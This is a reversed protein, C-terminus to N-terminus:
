KGDVYVPVGTLRKITTRIREENANGNSLHLLHIEKVMSIDNAKMFDVVKELGFHTRLVRECQATNLAGSAVNERLTDDDYNCEIMLRTIGKFRYRCFWTDTLFLIKEDGTSILFGLAGDVDHEVELPLVAWGSDVSFQVRPSVHHIRHGAAGIAEATQRSLYVDIGAKAADVVAKCHDAHSHSVLAGAVGLLDFNLAQKVKKWPIGLEVILRSTGNDLFYCNGASSSAITTISFM